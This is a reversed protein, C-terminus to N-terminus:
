RWTAVETKMPARSFWMVLFVPYILFWVTSIVIVTMMLPETVRFNIKGSHSLQDNIQKITQPMILIGVVASIMALLIKAFAWGVHAGRSWRRRKLLGIGASLLWVSLVFTICTQGIQIASVLPPPAPPRQDAPLMNAMYPGVIANISGCGYCMLGLVGLVISITGITGPWKTDVEELAMDRPEFPPFDQPPAPVETM